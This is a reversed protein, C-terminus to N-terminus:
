QVVKSLLENQKHMASDINKKDQYTDLLNSLEDIHFFPVEKSINQFPNCLSDGIFLFLGYHGYTYFSTSFITLFVITKHIDQLNTVEPLNINEKIKANPHYKIRLDLQKEKNLESLKILIAEQLNGEYDINNDKFSSHMFVYCIDETAKLTTLMKKAEQRQYQFQINNNWHQYFEFQSDSLVEFLTAEVYPGANGLGHSRNVVHCGTKKLEQGILLAAPVYDDETYYQKLSLQALEIAHKQYARYEFEVISHDNKILTLKIARWLSYPVGFFCTPYGKKKCARYFLFQRSLKYPFPFFICLSNKIENSHIQESVEVYCRVVSPNKKITRKSNWGIIRFIRHALCKILLLSGPTEIFNIKTETYEIHTFPFFDSNLKKKLIQPLILKKCQILENQLLFRVATVSKAFNSQRFLLNVLIKKKDENNDYLGSALLHCLEVHHNTRFINNPALKILQNNSILHGEATEVCIM